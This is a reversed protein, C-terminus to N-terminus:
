IWVERYVTWMVLHGVPLYGAPFVGLKPNLLLLSLSSLHLLTILFKRCMGQLWMWTKEQRVANGRFSTRLDHSCYVSVTDWFDSYCSLLPETQASSALSHPHCTLLLAEHPSLRPIFEATGWNNVTFGQSHVRTKDSFISSMMVWLCITLFLHLSSCM